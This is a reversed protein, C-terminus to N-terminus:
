VLPTYVAPCRMVATLPTNVGRAATWAVAGLRALRCCRASSTGAGILGRVLVFVRARSCQGALERFSVVGVFHLCRFLRMPTVVTTERPTLTRQEQDPIHQRPDRQSGTGPNRQRRRHPSHTDARQRTLGAHTNPTKDAALPLLTVTFAASPPLMGPPRPEAPLLATPRTPRPPSLPGHRTLPRSDRQSHEPTQGRIPSPCRGPCRVGNHGNRHDMPATTNDQRPHLILAHALRCLRGNASKTTAEDNAGSPHRNQNECGGARCHGERWGAM